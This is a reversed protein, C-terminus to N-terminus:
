VIAAAHAQEVPWTTGVAAVVEARLRDVLALMVEPDGQVTIRGHRYEGLDFSVIRYDTGLETFEHTDVTVPTDADMVFHTTVATM